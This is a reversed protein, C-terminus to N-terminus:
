SSEFRARLMQILRTPRKICNVYQRSKMDEDSLKVKDEFLVLLSPLTRVCMINRDREDVNKVLFSEFVYVANLLCGIFYSLAVSSLSQFNNIIPSSSFVIIFILSCVNNVVM